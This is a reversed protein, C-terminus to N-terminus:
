SYILLIFVSNYSILILVLSHSLIFSNFTHSSFTSQQMKVIVYISYKIWSINERKTTRENKRNLKGKILTCMNRSSGSCDPPRTVIPDRGIPCSAPPAPPFFPLAFSEFDFFRISANARFFLVYQRVRTDYMTAFMTMNTNTYGARWVLRQRVFRVVCVCSNTVSCIM